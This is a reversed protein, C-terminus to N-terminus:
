KRKELAALTAEGAGFRAAYERVTGEVVDGPTEYDGPLRAAISLDAGHDILLRVIDLGEEDFQTAAHFIATQGHASSGANVDAGRALLLRAADIDQYEAAVHLLTAGNLLLLRGGTQGCTLDPFRKEVLGPNADLLSALEDLRGRLLALVAPEDYKTRAGHELLIELCARFRAADRSYGEILYDLVSYGDTRNPEAGHELLWRLGKPNLGECAAFLIPYGGHWLENVDAGHAVLLEMMAVRDGNLAARMLPGDQGQHVDSGNRIMWEAMALREPSPPEWPVRCEAVWTLPGDEGYGLPARHLGPDATM